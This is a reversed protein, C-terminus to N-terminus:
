RNSFFLKHQKIENEFDSNADDKKSHKKKLIPDWSKLIQDKFQKCLREVYILHERHHQPSIGLPM